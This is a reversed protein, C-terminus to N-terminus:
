HEAHLYQQQIEGRKSYRPTFTDAYLYLRSSAPVLVSLTLPAGCKRSAAAWASMRLSAFDVTCCRQVYWLSLATVLSVNQLGEAM